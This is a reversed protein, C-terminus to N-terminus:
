RKKGNNNNQNRQKYNSYIGNFANSYDHQNSSDNDGYIEDGSEVITGPAQHLYETMNFEPKDKINGSGTSSIGLKDSQSSATRKYASNNILNQITDKFYTIGDIYSGGGAGKGFIISEREKMQSRIKNKNVETTKPDDLRKQWEDYEYILDALEEGFQVMVTPNAAIYDKFTKQLQKVSLEQISSGRESSQIGLTVNSQNINETGKEYPQMKDNIQVPNSTEKSTSSQQYATLQTIIASLTAPNLNDYVEVNSQWEDAGVINNNDDYIFNNDFKSNAEAILRKYRTDSIEKSKRKNDLWEKWKNFETNAKTMAGITKDEFPKLSLDSVFNLLKSKDGFNVDVEQKIKNNYDAVINDFEALTNSDQHINKRMEAFAKRTEKDQENVQNAVADMKDVAKFLMSDDIPKPEYFVPTFTSLQVPNYTLSLQQPKYEQIGYTM